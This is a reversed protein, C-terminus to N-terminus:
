RSSECLHEKVSRSSATGASAHATKTECCDQKPTLHGRPPCLEGHGLPGHQSWAQGRGAQPEDLHWSSASGVQVQRVPTVAQPLM